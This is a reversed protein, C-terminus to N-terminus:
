GSIVIPQESGTFAAPVIEAVHNEIAAALQKRAGAAEPSDALNNTEHPDNELDYPEVFSPKKAAAGPPTTEQDEGAADYAFGLLLGSLIMNGLSVRAPSM